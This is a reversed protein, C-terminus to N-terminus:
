VKAKSLKPPIKTSTQKNNRLRNMEHDVSKCSYLKKPNLNTIAMGSLTRLRSMSVYGQGASFIDDGLDLVAHNLTSGQLKHVTVAFNLILPIQTREIKMQHKGYFTSHVGSIPVTQQLHPDKSITRYKHPKTDHDFKVYVTPLETMSHGNAASKNHHLIDIVIGTAGNTLGNSTSINRRLMVKAGIALRLTNSLGATDRQDKPLFMSVDEYPIYQHPCFKPNNLIRHKAEITYITSDMAQLCAENHMDCQKLKAYIRTASSFPPSTLDVHPPMRSKLVAIDDASPQGLRIRNLITAFRQDGSQRVNTQLEYLKFLDRWLHLIPPNHEDTAFVYPQNVPKLQYFDGILIVNLNGFYEDPTNMIENLRQNIQQFTFYGCMSIEDVLFFKVESWTYRMQHLNQDSLKFSDYKNRHQVPLKLAKHLTSGGVAFAAVGTPACIIIPPKYSDTPFARLVFERIVNLIHTKGTGAGGSIFLRLPTPKTKHQGMEYAHVNKTYTKLHKFLDEQDPTLSQILQQYKEDTLQACHQLTNSLDRTHYSYDESDYLNNELSSINEKIHYPHYLDFEPNDMHTDIDINAETELLEMQKLRTITTVVKQAFNKHDDPLQLLNQKNIFANLASTYPLLIEDETRWPLHLVLLSYYFDDGHTEATFNPTRICAPKHRFILQNKRNTTYKSTFEYLTLTSFPKTNPRNAYKDFINPMYINQDKDDLREIDAKPKLIRTRNDPRATNIFITSRSSRKYPLEALFFAAEQASILRHSLLTNGITFMKKRISASEPLCKLRKSITQYLEVPESKAVYTSIYQATAFSSSILQVDLNGAWARLLTPNYANIYVETEQRQLDYFRRKCNYIDSNENHNITTQDRQPRPYNFRCQSNRKKQCTHTHRHQQVTTVLDYLEPDSQKDPIQVTCYKDIFNTIKVMDTEYELVPADEIWLLIHAHPSGRDQWEIRYFSDAIKGLTQQKRLYTNFFTQFRHHFHRAATVPHSALLQTKQSSTLSDPNVSDNQSLTTKALVSFLDRWHHDNASLTVFFTPPGLQNLQAFLDLKVQRWFAATGRIQKLFAWCNENIESPISIPTKFLQANITVNQCTTHTAQISSNNNRQRVAISISTNLLHQTVNCLTYFLYPIDNQYRNDKHLLKSQAYKLYSICQPRQSKFTGLGKPFLWPFSLSELDVDNYLSIPATKIKQLEIIPKHRSLNTDCNTDPLIFDTPFAFKDTYNHQIVNIDHNDNSADQSQVPKDSPKDTICSDYINLENSSPKISVNKYHPNHEKLWDLAQLILSPRVDHLAVTKDPSLQPSKILITDCDSLNRPLENIIDLLPSTFNIAQGLLAHQGYRLTMLRMFPQVRSILRKETTNLVSLEKPVPCTHLNNKEAAYPIKEMLIANQCRHCIWPENTTQDRTFVYATVDVNPSPSGLHPYCTKNCVACTETPGILIDRRFQTLTKMDKQKQQQTMLHNSDTLHKKILYYENKTFQPYKQLFMSLTMGNTSIDREICTYIDTPIKPLVCSVRNRYFFNDSFSPHTKLFEKRTINPHQQLYQKAESYDRVSPMPVDHSAHQHLNNQKLKDQQQGEQKKRKVYNYYFSNSIKPFKAKFMTLTTEPENLIYSKAEKYMMTSDNSDHHKPGTSSAMKYTCGENISKCNRHYFARSILPFKAKFTTISINPNEHLYQKALKYDTNTTTNNKFAEKKATPFQNDNAHCRSEEMKIEPPFSKCLTADPQLTGNITQSQTRLWRRSQIPLCTVFHDPQFHNGVTRGSSKTWMINIPPFHENELPHFTRNFLHRIRANYQPYISVIPRHIATALAEMHWANSWSRDICASKIDEIYLALIASPDNTNYDTSNASFPAYNQLIIESEARLLDMNSDQQTYISINRIMELVTRTRLEVHLYEEGCIGISAANYLCNGNSGTIVPSLTYDADTPYLDLAVYDINHKVHKVTSPLEYHNLIGKYLDYSKFLEEQTSASQVSARLDMLVQKFTDQRSLLPYLGQSSNGSAHHNHCTWIWPQQSM